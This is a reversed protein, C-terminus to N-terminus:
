YVILRMGAVVDPMNLHAPVGAPNAAYATGGLTNVNNGDTLNWVGGGWLAAGDRPNSIYSYSVKIASVSTVNASLEILGTRWNVNHYNGMFWQRTDLTGTTPLDYWGAYTTSVGYMDVITGQISVTVAHWVSIPYYQTRYASGATVTTPTENLVQAVPYRQAAPPYNLYDIPAYEVWRQFSDKDLMDKLSQIRVVEGGIQDASQGYHYLVATVTASGTGTFSALWASGNWSFTCVVSPLYVGAAFAMVFEPVIGPYIAASLTQVASASAVNTVTKKATWKVTKGRHLMGPTLTSTDGWYGTVKDGARLTGHANNISLVYPVEAQFGKKYKVTPSDTMFGADTPAKKYMQNISMGAPTLNVGDHLTLPTLGTDSYLFRYNGSGKGNTYGISVFRGQPIVIVAAPDFPDIGVPSLYPDITLNEWPVFGVSEASVQVQPKWIRNPMGFAGYMGQLSM